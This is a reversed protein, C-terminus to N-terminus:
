APRGYYPHSSSSLTSTNLHYVYDDDNNDNSFMHETHSTSRSPLTVQVVDIGSAKM